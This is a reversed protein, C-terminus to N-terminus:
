SDDGTSLVSKAKMWLAAELRSRVHLKEMIRSLHSKVTGPSIGLTGGIERNSMCKEAILHLVQIERPSLEVQSDFSEMQISNMRLYFEKLFSSAISPSLYSDGECIQRLIIQLLDIPIDKDVYANAHVIFASLPDADKYPQTIIIRTNPLAHKIAKSAEVFDCNTIYKDLLVIDPKLIISEHIAEHGRYCTAVIEVDPSRAFFRILGGTFIQGRDAILIKIKGM